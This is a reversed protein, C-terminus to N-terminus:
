RAGRPNERIKVEFATFTKEGPVLMQHPVGAPVHAVDGARLEQRTGSEISSGRIEGPGITEAGVVTGGTVLTARGDLVVFLDAVNEHLEVVGDRGRFSLMTSHDPYEKLTESASGNSHKALKSLYAARELLIALSWHDAHPAPDKRRRTGAPPVIEKEAPLLERLIRESFSDM